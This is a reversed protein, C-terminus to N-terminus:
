YFIDDRMGEPLLAPIFESGLVQNKVENMELAKM